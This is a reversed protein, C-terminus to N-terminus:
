RLEPLTDGTMFSPKPQESAAKMRALNGIETNVVAIRDGPGLHTPAAIQNLPHAGRYRTWFTVIAAPPYGANAMLYVSLRDAEVETQRILRASRGLQGFIGRRVGAAELRIRHRLINHAFEHALMAAVQDEDGAFRIMGSNIQVYVGDAKSQLEDDPNV